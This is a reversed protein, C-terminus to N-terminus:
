EATGECRPLGSGEPRQLGLTVFVGTVVFSAIPPPPIADLADGSSIGGASANCRAWEEGGAATEAGGGDTHGAGTLTDSTRDTSRRNNCWTHTSNNLPNRAERPASAGTKGQTCGSLTAMSTRSALLSCCMVGACLCLTPVCINNAYQGGGCCDGGDSSSVGVVVSPPLTKMGMVRVCAVGGILGVEGIRARACDGQAHVSGGTLAADEAAMPATADVGAGQPVTSAETACCASNGSDGHRRLRKM